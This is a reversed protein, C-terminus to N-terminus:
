KDPIEEVKVKPSVPTEYPIKIPLSFDCRVSKQNYLAPKWKPLQRLARIAEKGTGMGLDRLLKIHTVSGDKEVVFKLFIHGKLNPNGAPTKFEAAFLRYFNSLGGPFEPKTLGKAAASFLTDNDKVTFPQFPTGPCVIPKPKTLGQGLALGAFLLFGINILKNM